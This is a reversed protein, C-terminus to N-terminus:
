YRRTVEKHPFRFIGKPRESRTILLTYAQRHESSGYLQCSHFPKEIRKKPKSRALNRHAQPRGGLLSSVVMVIGLSMFFNGDISAGEGSYSYGLFPQGCLQGLKDVRRVCGNEPCIGSAM